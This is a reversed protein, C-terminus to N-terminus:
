EKNILKLLSEIGSCEIPIKEDMLKLTTVFSRGKLELSYMFVTLDGSPLSRIADSVTITEDDKDFTSGPTDLWKKLEKNCKECLDGYKFRSRGYTCGTHKAITLEQENTCDKKCRDCIRKIM